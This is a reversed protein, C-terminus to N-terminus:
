KAPNQYWVVNKSAQGAVVLDPDGDADMDITRIDYAAQDGDILHRTFNGKGDNEYWLAWKSDKAVTAADLDGDLDLDIVALCHAGEPETDIEHITWDPAEFWLLGFGHGRSALLDVKGDGNLDGPHINTAATQGTALVTKKWPQTVTDASGPNTWFAFWNGDKFPDGKAGVAIEGWGDGNLDGFGMYHSGGGADGKAYYHRNWREATHPNEPIECWIMSDALPGTPEFNNILLDLKGDRNVDAKLLCHFGNIDPEIVRYTWQGGEGPGSKGAGPNELWFVPGKSHGGLYDPDGDGDVDMVESHICQQGLKPFVYIVTEQWDPAAFIRVKGGASAAIDLRGDGSYDAANATQCPFGESVVHKKWVPNAPTPPTQAIGLLPTGVTLAAAVAAGLPWQAFVINKSTMPMM